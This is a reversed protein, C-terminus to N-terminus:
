HDDDPILLELNRLRPLAYGGLGILLMALSCIVYLLAIGSGKETGLLWGFISALWQGSRMAPEFLRDALPGSILYSLSSIITVIMSRTAFVRGQRESSVKSLWIADLSSGFVPFNFSSCFQMPIWVLPTTGLGFITKSLGAGIVGLQVGNIRRKFGSWKSMLLAGTVGGVGAASALSGLVRPDNNSRALIMAPYLSNGLDHFLWFLSILVLLYLLSAHKTLYNWGFSLDKGISLPKEANLVRQKPQPIRIWLIMTIAVMFTIIDILMIGDLEITVYLVSALAPAIINSGYKALFGMSSARSYHQKSVLISISTSFALNQCQEFIGTIARALYLHWIQLQETSYLILIIITFLGAILDGAIMLFKRNWRDVITGSILFTFIQPLQSFFGFLALDTARGTLQWVWIGLAFRSMSSGLMSITQGFWIIAFTKLNRKTSNISM